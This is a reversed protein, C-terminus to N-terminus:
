NGLELGFAQGDALDLNLVTAVFDVGLICGALLGIRGVIGLGQFHQVVRFSAFGDLRLLLLLHDRVHLCGWRCRTDPVREHAQKM